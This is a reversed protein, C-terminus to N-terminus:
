FIAPSKFRVDQVRQRVILDKAIIDISLGSIIFTYGCNFCYIIIVRLM